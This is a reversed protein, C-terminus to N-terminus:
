KALHTKCGNITKSEKFEKQFNQVDSEIKLLTKKSYMQRPNELIDCLPLAKYVIFASEQIKSNNNYALKDKSLLMYRNDDIKEAIYYQNDKNLLKFKFDIAKKVEAVKVFYLNKSSIM